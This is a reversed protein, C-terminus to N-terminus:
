AKFLKKWVGSYAVPAMAVLAGAAAWAVLTDIKTLDIRLGAVLVAWLAMGLAILTTTLAETKM